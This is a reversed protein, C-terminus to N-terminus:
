LLPGSRHPWATRKRADRRAFRCDNSRSLPLLTKKM